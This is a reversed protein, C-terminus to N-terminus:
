PTKDGPAVVGTIAYRRIKTLEDEERFRSYIFGDKFVAGNALGDISVRGIFGGTPDFVDYGPADDVPESWRVLINGDWDVVIDDFYPKHRPFKMANKMAPELGTQGDREFSRYYAEKDEETVPPAEVDRKIEGMQELDPSLIRIFYKDSRGIIIKGDASVAWILDPPYPVTAMTMADGVQVMKWLKVSTSDVTVSESFDESVRLLRLWNVGSSDMFDFEQLGLYIRGGPGMVIDKVGDQSLRSDLYEGDPSFIQFRKNLYDHTYIRGSADIAIRSAGRFEGPGEGERGITKIYDGSPGFIKMCHLKYDLVYINGAADIAFGSPAYLIANEDEVDDGGIELSLDLDVIGTEYVEKLSGADVSGACLLVALTPLVAILLSRESRRPLKLVNLSSIWNKLIEM